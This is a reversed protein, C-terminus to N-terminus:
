ELMEVTRAKEWHFRIVMNMERKETKQMDLISCEPSTWWKHCRQLISTHLPSLINELALPLKESAKSPFQIGCFIGFVIVLTSGHSHQDIHDSVVLALTTASYLRWKESDRAWGVSFCDKQSYSFVPSAIFIQRYGLYTNQELCTSVSNKTHWHWSM